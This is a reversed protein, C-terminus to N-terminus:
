ACARRNKDQAIALRSECVIRALRAIKQADSPNSPSMRVHACAIDEEARAQPDEAISQYLGVRRLVRRVVLDLLHGELHTGARIAMMRLASELEMRPATESLMAPPAPLNIRWQEPNANNNPLRLPPLKIVQKPPIALLDDPSPLLNSRVSNMSLNCISAVIPPPMPLRPTARMTM